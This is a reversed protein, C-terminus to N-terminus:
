STAAALDRHLTRHFLRNFLRGIPLVTVALPVLLFIGASPGLLVAALLAVIAAQFAASGTPFLLRLLVMAFLLLSATVIPWGSERSDSPILRPESSIFQSSRFEHWFGPPRAEPDPKSDSRFTVIRPSALHSENPLELSWGLPVRVRWDIEPVLIKVDDLSFQPGNWQQEPSSWSASILQTSAGEVHFKAAGREVKISRGNAECSFRDTGFPTTIGLVGSQNPLISYTANYIWSQGVHHLFIERRNVRVLEDRYSDTRRTVTGKWDHDVAQWEAPSISQLGAEPKMSLTNLDVLIAHNPTPNSMGVRVIAVRPLIWSDLKKELPSAIIKLSRPAPDAAPISIAWRRETLTKPAEVVKWLPPSVLEIDCDACDHIQVTVQHPRNRHLAELNISSISQIRDEITKVTTRIPLADGIQPPYLMVSVSTPRDTNWALEGAAQPPLAKAPTGESLALSWGNASRVRTQVATQAASAHVVPPLTVPSPENVPRSRFALWNLQIENAPSELWVRIKGDTQSWTAVGKGAVDMVALEAPLTWEVTSMATGKWRTEAKVLLRTPDIWWSLSENVTRPPIRNQLALGLRPPITGDVRYAASIQGTYATGELSPWVERVFSEVPIVALNTSATPMREEVSVFGTAAYAEVEAVGLPRPFLLSGNESIPKSLALELSFIARNTVPALTQITLRREGNGDVPGISWDRIRAASVSFGTSDARTGLRSVECNGPIALQFTGVGGGGIRYEFVGSLTASQPTIQWVCAQKVRLTPKTGADETWRTSISSSTGFDAKLRQGGPIAELSVAGRWGGLQIPTAPGLLEFTLNSVPVEPVAFKLERDNGSSGIAITFQLELTHAGKGALAVRIGEAGAEIDRAEAGDLAVSRFRAGAIPISIHGIGEEFNHLRYSVRLTAMTGVRSANYSASLIVPGLPTQGNAERARDLMAAPVLYSTTKGDRDRIESIENASTDAGKVLTAVFMLSVVTVAGQKRINSPRPVDKSSTALVLNLLIGVAFVFIGPGAVDQRLVPVAVWIGCTAILTVLFFVHRFQPRVSLFIGSALLIAVFWSVASIRDRNLLRPSDSRVGADEFVWWGPATELPDNGNRTKSDWHELSVFRGSSDSGVQLAESVAQDVENPLLTFWASEFRWRDLTERTTVLLGDPRDVAIIRLPDSVGPELKSEASELSRSGVQSLAVTDVIVRASKTNVPVLRSRDVFARWDPIPLNQRREGTGPIVQWSSPVLPRWEPSIKWFGRVADPDFPGAPSLHPVQTSFFGRRLTLRYRLEVSIWQNSRPVSIKLLQSSPASIEALASRGAVFIEPESVGAPLTLPLYGTTLRRVQISFGVRCEGRADISHIVQAERFEPVHKEIPLGTPVSSQDGYRYEKEGVNLAPSEVWRSERQATSLESISRVTGTFSVGLPWPIPLRLLADRDDNSYTSLITTDRVLPRAFRLRWRYGGTLTVTGRSTFASLPTHFPLGQLSAVAEDIPSREARAIWRGAGDRWDWDGEVLTPTWLTIDSLAGKKLDISIATSIAMGARTPQVSNEIALRYRAPNHSLFLQGTLPISGIERTMPAQTEVPTNPIPDSLVANITPDVQVKLLGKRSSCGEPYLDPLELTERSSGPRVRRLYAVLEGKPLISGLEVDLISKGAGTVSWSAERNNREVREVTWGGPVGFRISRPTNGLSAVSTKVMLREEERGVTWESQQVVTWAGQGRRSVVLSPRRLPQTAGALRAPEIELVYSQDAGQESKTLAFDRLKADRLELGAGVSLFLKESRLVAKALWVGSSQWENPSLTIASSGSIVVSASRTPERLRVLIAPTAPDGTVLSWSVLNNASVSSPIFAPDHTFQLESFGTKASEVQFEFRALAESANLGQNSVLRCFLPTTAESTRRLLIELRSNGGFAIRWNHEGAAAPFPGTLVAEAQPLVPTLGLPLEMELTAVPVSPLGIEFRVEGPENIGRTSWELHLAREDGEPVYLRTPSDPMRKYLIADLGDSWKAQRVAIQLGDLAIVAPSSPPRRVKWEASGSLYAEGNAEAVFRARYNAVIVKPRLRDPDRTKSAQFAQFDRPSLQVLTGREVQLLAEALDAKEILASKSRLDSSPADPGSQALVTLGLGLILLVFVIFRAVIPRM